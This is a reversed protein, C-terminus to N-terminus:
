IKNREKSKQIAKRIESFGMEGIGIQINYAYISGADFENLEIADQLDELEKRTQEHALRESEYRGNYIEVIINLEARIKQDSDYCNTIREIENVHADIVQEIPLTRAYEVWTKEKIERM